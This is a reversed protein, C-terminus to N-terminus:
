NISDCWLFLKEVSCFWICFTFSTTNFYKSWSSLIDIHSWWLTTNPLKADKFFLSLTRFLGYCFCEQKHHLTIIKCFNFYPRCPKKETFIFVAVTLSRYSSSLTTICLGAMSPQLTLPLQFKIQLTKKWTFLCPLQSPDSCHLPLQEASDLWAIFSFVTEQSPPNRHWLFNFNSRYPKSRYIFM